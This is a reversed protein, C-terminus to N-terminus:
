RVAPWRPVAMAGYECAGIAADLQLGAAYDDGQGQGPGVPRDRARARDAAPRGNLWITTAAGLTSGSRSVHRRLPDRGDARRLGRAHRALAATPINLNYLQPEAGKKDLIQRIIGRALRAPRTSAPTSTSSWRSPWAPSASSPGKSPRRWRARTFCTSARREARRQHRQGGPRAAPPLVAPHRNERLRGPQRRRGLGLPTRRRGAENRFVEKVILPTLYTISHGVGSQETAPAM